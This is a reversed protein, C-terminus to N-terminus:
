GNGAVPEIKGQKIHFIWPALRFGQSNIQLIVSEQAPWGTAIVYSEEQQITHIAGTENV